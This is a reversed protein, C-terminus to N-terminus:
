ARMRRWIFRAVYSLISGDFPVSKHLRMQGAATEQLTCGPTQGHSRQGIWAPRLGAVSRCVGLDPEVHPIKVSGAVAGGFVGRGELLGDVPAGNEAAALDQHRGSVVEGSGDCQAAVRGQTELFIGGKEAAGVEGIIGDRLDTPLTLPDRSTHAQDIGEIGHIDPDGTGPFDGTVYGQSAPGVLLVRQAM